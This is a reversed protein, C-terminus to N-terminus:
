RNSALRRILWVVAAIILVIFLIRGFVYGAKYADSKAAAVEVSLLFWLLAACAAPLSTRM